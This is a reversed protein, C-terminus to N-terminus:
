AWLFRAVGVAFVISVFQILPAVCQDLWRANQSSCNTHYTPISDLGINRRNLWQYYKADERREDHLDHGLQHQMTNRALDHVYYTGEPQFHRYYIDTAELFPRPIDHRVPRHRPWAHIDSRINREPTDPPSRDSRKRKGLGIDKDGSNDNASEPQRGKKRRRSTLEATPLYGAGHIAMADDSSEFIDMPDDIGDSIDMMEPSPPRGDSNSDMPEPITSQAALYAPNRSFDSPGEMADHDEINPLDQLQQDAQGNEPKEIPQQIGGSSTTTEQNGSSNKGDNYRNRSFVVRAHSSEGHTDEENDTQPSSGHHMQPHGNPRGQVWSALEAKSPTRLPIGRHSSTTLTARAAASSSGTGSGANQRESSSIRNRSQTENSYHGPDFSPNNINQNGAIDLRSRLRTLTAIAITESVSPSLLRSVGECYPPPSPAQSQSLRRPQCRNERKAHSQIMGDNGYYNQDVPSHAPRKPTSPPSSQRNQSNSFPESESNVEPERGRGAVRRTEFSTAMEHSVELDEDDIIIPYDRTTGRNQFVHAGSPGSSAPVQRNTVEVSQPQASRGPAHRRCPHLDILCGCDHFTFGDQREQIWGVGPCVSLHFFCGCHPIKLVRGGDGPRKQMAYAPDVRCDHLKVGCQYAAHNRFCKISISGESTTSLSHRRCPQCQVFCECHNSNIIVATRPIQSAQEM